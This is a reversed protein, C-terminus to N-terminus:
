LIPHLYGEDENKDQEDVADIADVPNLDLESLGLFAPIYRRRRKIL